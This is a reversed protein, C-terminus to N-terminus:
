TQSNVLHMDIKRSQRFLMQPSNVTLLVMASIREKSVEFMNEDTVFCQLITSITMCFVQNFMEATAMSALFILTTMMYLGHLEKDYYYDLYIYGLLTSATVIFAKLTFLILSSVISVASIRVANTLILFFADRAGICFSHGHIATQIFANKSVFKICKEVMCLCCSFCILM